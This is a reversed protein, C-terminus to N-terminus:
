SIPMSFTQWKAPPKLAQFAPPPATSGIPGVVFGAQALASLNPVFTEIALALGGM